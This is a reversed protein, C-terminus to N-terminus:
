KGWTFVNPFFTTASLMIIDESGPIRKVDFRNMTKWTNIGTNFSFGLEYGSQEALYRSEDTIHQYNGVPFAISRIKVGTKEELIAKSLNIEEKQSIPDITSLVRHTHTHSGITINNKSVKEIQDWNMLQSDQKGVDPISLECEKALDTLLNKTKEHTELQMKHQFFRIAELRGNKLSLQKEEYNLYPKKTNKILYAIIDWWGLQRTNILNSSIFYIAPIGLEKLVPYALTYNDIYGDDFTILV